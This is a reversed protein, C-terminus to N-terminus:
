RQATQAISLMTLYVVFLSNLTIGMFFYVISGYYYYYDKVYKCNRSIIFVSEVPNRCYSQRRIFNLTKTWSSVQM